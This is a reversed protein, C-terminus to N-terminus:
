CNERLFPMWDTSVPLGPFSIQGSKLAVSRESRARRSDQISFAQSRRSATNYNISISCWNGDRFIIAKGQVVSSLGSNCKKGKTCNQYSFFCLIDEGEKECSKSTELREIDCNNQAKCLSLYGLEEEYGEFMEIRYNATCAVLVFILALTEPIASSRFLSRLARVTIELCVRM